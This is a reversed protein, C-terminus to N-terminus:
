RQSNLKTIFSLNRTTEVKEAFDDASKVLEVIDTELHKRRKKIDDIEDM